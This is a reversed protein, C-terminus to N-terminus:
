KLLSLRLTLIDLSGLMEKLHWKNIEKSTVQPEKTLQVGWM